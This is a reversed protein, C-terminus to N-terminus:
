ESEREGRTRNPAGLRTAQHRSYPAACRDEQCVRSCCRAHSPRVSEHCGARDSEADGLETMGGHRCATMTVHEPLGAARRAERVIRKAYSFSYPRTAGREGLSVVIPIALRPLEALRAELEPYFREGGAELPHWVIEGTKHHVIRVHIPRDPPRYDAWCLHIASEPNRDQSLM